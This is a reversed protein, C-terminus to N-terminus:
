EWDEEQIKNPTIVEDLYPKRWTGKYVHLPAPGYGGGWLKKTTPWRADQFGKAEIYFEEGSKLSRVKFDAVYKYRAKTMYVSCEHQLHELEKAIEQMRIMDCVARELKSRHSFGYFCLNEVKQNGYKPPHFTMFNKKAHGL